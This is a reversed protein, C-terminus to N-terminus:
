EWSCASVGLMVTDCVDTEPKWPTEHVRAPATTVHPYPLFPRRPIPSSVSLHPSALLSPRSSRLSLLLM